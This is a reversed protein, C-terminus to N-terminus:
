WSILLSSLSLPKMVYSNVRITALCFPHWPDMQLKCNSIGIFTNIHQPSFVLSPRQQFETAEFLNHIMPEM